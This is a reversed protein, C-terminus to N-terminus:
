NGHHNNGGGQSKDQHEITFNNPNNGNHWGNDHAGGTSGGPGAPGSSSGSGGVGALSGGNAGGNGNGAGALHDNGVSGADWAVLFTRSEADHDAGATAVLSIRYAG